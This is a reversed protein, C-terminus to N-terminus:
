ESFGMDHCRRFESCAWIRVVNTKKNQYGLSDVNLLHLLKFLTDCILLQIITFYLLRLIHYKISQGFKM